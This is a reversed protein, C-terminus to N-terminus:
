KGKLQQLRMKQPTIGFYRKFCLEFGSYSRYGVELAIDELRKDPDQLYIEALEMRRQIIISKYDQGLFRKVLSSTQRQSLFLVQALGRIGTNDTCRQTIYDEIIWKQRLSLPDVVPTDTSVGPIHSMLNLAMNLFLIGQRTELLPSHDLRCLQQCQEILTAVEEHGFLVPKQINLFLDVIPSSKNETPEASFNFCVREVPTDKTYVGHYSGQPLLLIQGATLVIEQSEHPLTIIEQGSFVCHFEISFHNHPREKVLEEPLPFVSTARIHCNARDLTTNFQFQM